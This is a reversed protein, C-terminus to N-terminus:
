GPSMVATSRSSRETRRPSIKPRSPGFPAPLVVVAPMSVVRTIGVPRAHTRRRRRRRPAGSRPSAPSRRPGASWCARGSASRTPSGRSGRDSRRCSRSSSWPRPSGAARATGARRLPGLSRHQCEGAAHRLPEHHGPRDHVPRRDEEEVLRGGPEIRLAADREPVDEALQVGRTLRDQEGRVVHLLGVLEAVPERDDVPALQEREARRGLELLGDADVRHDRDSRVAVEVLERVHQAGLDRVCRRDLVGVADHPHAHTLDLAHEGFTTSAASRWPNLTDSREDVSGVRSVTNMSRVPFSRRSHRGDCGDGRDGADLLELPGGPLRGAGREPRRNRRSRVTSRLDRLSNRGRVNSCGNRSTNMKVYTKGFIPCPTPPEPAAAASNEVRRTAPTIPSEIM